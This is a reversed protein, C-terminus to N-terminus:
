GPDLNTYSAIRQKGVYRWEKEYNELFYAYENKQPNNFHLAAFGFSIDNQWYALRIEQTM